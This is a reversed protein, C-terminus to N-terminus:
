YIDFGFNLTEMQVLFSRNKKYKQGLISESYKRPNSCLELHSNNKEEIQCNTYKIFIFFTIFM